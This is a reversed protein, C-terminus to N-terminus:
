KFSELYRIVATALAREADTQTILSQEEGAVVNSDDLQLTRVTSLTRSGLQISSNAEIVTVTTRYTREYEKLTGNNALAIQRSHTEIPTTNIIIKAAEKEVLGGGNATLLKKIQHYFSMSNSDAELLYTQQFDDALPTSVGRLQFGCSTLCLGLLLGWFLALFLKLFRNLLLAHM